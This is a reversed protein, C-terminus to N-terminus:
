VKIMENLVQDRVAEYEDELDLDFQDKYNDLLELYRNWHKTKAASTSLKEIKEKQDWFSETLVRGKQSQAANFFVTPFDSTKPLIGAKTAQDLTLAIQMGYEYRSFFTELNKTKEFINLCDQLIRIHNKAEAVTYAGRMSKVAAEPNLNSHIQVPAEQPKTKPTRNRLLLFIFFAFLLDMLLFAFWLDPKQFACVTYVVIGFSFFFVGFWKLFKKL